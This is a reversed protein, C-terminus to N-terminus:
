FIKYVTQVRLKLREKKFLGCAHINDVHNICGEPGRKETKLLRISSCFTAFLPLTVNQTPPMCKNGSLCLDPTRAKRPIKSSMEISTKYVKAIISCFFIKNKGRPLRITINKVGVYFFPPPDSDWFHKRNFM